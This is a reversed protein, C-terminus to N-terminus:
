AVMMAPCRSNRFITHMVEGDEDKLRGDRRKQTAFILLDVRHRALYDVIPEDGRGPDVLLRAPIGQQQLQAYLTKLESYLREGHVRETIMDEPLHIRLLQLDAGSDGALLCTLKFVEDSVPLGTFALLVRKKKATMQFDEMSVATLNEHASASCPVVPQPSRGRALRHRISASRRKKLSLFTTERARICHSLLSVPKLDHYGIGGYWQLRM